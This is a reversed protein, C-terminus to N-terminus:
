GRYVIVSAGTGAVSVYLGTKASVPLPFIETQNRVGAPVVTQFLIPHATDAAASTNDYVIITAPNTGDASVSVAVLRSRGQFVLTSTTLSGSSISISESM